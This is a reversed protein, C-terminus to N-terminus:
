KNKKLNDSVLFIIGIAVWFLSELYNKKGITEILAIGFFLLFIVFNTGLKIKAM